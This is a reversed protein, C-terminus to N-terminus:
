VKADGEEKHEVKAGKLRLTLTWKVDVKVEM